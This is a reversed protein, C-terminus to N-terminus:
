LSQLEKMVGEGEAEEPPYDLLQRRKTDVGILTLLKLALPRTAGGVPGISMPADPRDRLLERLGSKPCRCFTWLPEYFVTGLSVLGPSEQENTTGAQVFGAGVGAGPDRLRELNEVAGMTPVLRLRVGDRALIERYREAVQVYASGATGTAIALDRGPLPRLVVIFAWLLVVAAVILAAIGLPTRFFQRDVRPSNATRESPISSSEPSREINM